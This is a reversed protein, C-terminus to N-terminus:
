CAGPRVRIPRRAPDPQSLRYECNVAISRHHFTPIPRIRDLCCNEKPINYKAAHRMKLKGVVDVLPPRPAQHNCPDDTKVSARDEPFWIDAIGLSKQVAAPIPLCDFPWIHRM